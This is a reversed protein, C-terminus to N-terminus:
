RCYTEYLFGILAAVDSRALRYYITQGSRRTKVLGDKRLLALQQSVATERAGIRAALDGVSMEQDVLLCLILLRKPNSLAKLLGGVEEAKRTM